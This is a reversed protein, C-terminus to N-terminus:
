TDNPVIRLNRRSAVQNAKQEIESALLIAEEMKGKAYPEFPIGRKARLVFYANLSLLRVRLVKTMYSLDNEDSM